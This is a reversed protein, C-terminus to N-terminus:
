APTISLLSLLWMEILVVRVSLCNTNFVTCQGPGTPSVTPGPGQAASAQGLSSLGLLVAVVTARLANKM